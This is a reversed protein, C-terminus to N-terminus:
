PSDVSGALGVNHQGGSGLAPISERFGCHPVQLMRVRDAAHIGIWTAASDIGCALPGDFRCRRMGLLYAVPLRPKTREEAAREAHHQYRQANSQNYHPKTVM